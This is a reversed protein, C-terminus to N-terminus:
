TAEPTPFLATSKALFRAAGALDGSAMKRQAIELSRLAEDKNMEM